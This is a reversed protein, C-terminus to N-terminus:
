PDVAVRKLTMTVGTDISTVEELDDVSDHGPFVISHRQLDPVLQDLPANASVPLAVDLRAKEVVQSRRVVDASIPRRRISDHKDRKITDDGAIEPGPRSQTSGNNREVGIV